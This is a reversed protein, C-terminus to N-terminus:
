KWVSIRQSGSGDSREELGSEGSERAAAALMAAAALSIIASLKAVGSECQRRWM